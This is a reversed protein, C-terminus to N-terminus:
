CCLADSRVLVITSGFKDLVVDPDTEGVPFTQCDPLPILRDLTDHSLGKPLYPFVKCGSPSHGLADYFIRRSDAPTTNLRDPV